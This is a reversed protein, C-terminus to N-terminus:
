HPDYNSPLNWIHATKRLAKLPPPLDGLFFPPLMAAAPSVGKERLLHAPTKFEKGSNHCALRTGAKARFADGPPFAEPEPFESEVTSHFTEVDAQWAHRKPPITRHAAGFESEAARTFAGPDKAFVSGAFGSGNGTRVTVASTDVGCDALHGLVARIFGVPHALSREDAFGLFTTGTTRDRATHEWAPGRGSRMAPRCEPIDRLDKTDVRIQRFAPWLSKVERLRRKTQRKRRRPRV